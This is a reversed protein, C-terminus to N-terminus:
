WEHQRYKHLASLSDNAMLFLAVESLMASSRSVTRPPAPMSVGRLCPVPTPRCPLPSYDNKLQMHKKICALQKRSALM